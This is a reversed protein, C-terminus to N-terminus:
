CYLFAEWLFFGWVIDGKVKKRWFKLVLEDYDSIDDNKVRKLDIFLQICSTFAYLNLPEWNKCFSPLFDVYTQKIIKIGIDM